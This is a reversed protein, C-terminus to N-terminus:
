EAVGQAVARYAIDRGRADYAQEILQQEGAFLEGQSPSLGMLTMLRREFEQNSELRGDALIHGIQLGYPRLHRCVLITRHCDLPEKESCMLAIVHDRAGAVVRDIGERFLPLMAVREYVAHGNVYCGEEDRRAGLERGLPVYKIGKRKLVAPLVDRNFHQIRSFPDSRVDALATVGNLTLLKVFHDLDHTSHGVTFVPKLDDIM